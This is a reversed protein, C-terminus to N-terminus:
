PRRSKVIIFVANETTQTDPKVTAFESIAHEILHSIYYSWNGGMNHQIVFIRADGSIEHRYNFGAVRIWRELLEFVSEETRRRTMIMMTEDTLDRAASEALASVQEKTLPDFLLKLVGRRIPVFGARAANAHWEIHSRVVQNLLTNLSIQKQEAELRLKDLMTKDFRFTIAETHNTLDPQNKM